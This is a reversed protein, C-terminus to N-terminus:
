FPFFRQQSEEADGQQFSVSLLAFASFMWSQPLLQPNHCSTMERTLHEEFLEQFLQSDYLTLSLRVLSFYLEDM